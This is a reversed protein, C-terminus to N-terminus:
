ELYDVRWEGRYIVEQTRIGYLGLGSGHNSGKCHIGSWAIFFLM